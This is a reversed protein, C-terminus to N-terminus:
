NLTRIANAEINKLYGKNDRKFEFDWQTVTSDLPNESLKSKIQTLINEIPTNDTEPISINIGEVQRELSELCNIIKNLEPSNDVPVNVVPAEFKLAEIKSELGTIVEGVSQIAAVINENIANLKLVEERQFPYQKKAARKGAPSLEKYKETKKVEEWTLFEM